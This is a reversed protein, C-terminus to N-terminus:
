SKNKRQVVNPRKKEESTVLYQSMEQPLTLIARERVAEWCENKKCWQTVNVVGRQPDTIIRFVQEALALLVNGVIEPVDQRNWIKLLNFDAGHFQKQIM